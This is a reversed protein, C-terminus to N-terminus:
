PKPRKFIEATRTDFYTSDSINAFRGNQSNNKELEILQGLLSNLHMQNRVVEVHMKMFREMRSALREVDGGGGGGGNYRQSPEDSEDLRAFADQSTISFIIVFVIFLQLILGVTILVHKINKM